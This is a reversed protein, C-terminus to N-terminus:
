CPESQGLAKWEEACDTSAPNYTDPSWEDCPIGLMCEGFADLAARRSPCSGWYNLSADICAQQDEYYTGGCDVYHDCFAELGSPEVGTTDGATTSDDATTGSTGTTADGTSSSGTSDSTASDSTADSTSGGSTSGAGTSQTGDSASASSWTASPSSDFLQALATTATGSGEGTRRSSAASPM